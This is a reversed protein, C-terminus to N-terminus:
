WDQAANCDVTSAGHLGRERTHWGHGQHFLRVIPRECADEKATYMCCGDSPRCLSLGCPAPVAELLVFGDVRKTDGFPLQSM